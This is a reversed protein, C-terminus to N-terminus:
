LNRRNYPSSNTLYTLVEDPTPLRCCLDVTTRRIITADDALPSPLLGLKKWKEACVRDIYHETNFNPIAALSQGHPVLARFVAVQGMYRAMIAAEGSQGNCEVLGEPSVGAVPGM